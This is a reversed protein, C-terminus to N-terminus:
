THISSVTQCQNDRVRCKGCSTEHTSYEHTQGSCHCCRAPQAALGALRSGKGGEPSTGTQIACGSCASVDCGSACDALVNGCGCCVAVSCVSVERSCSRVLEKMCQKVQEDVLQPSLPKGDGLQVSVVDSEVTVM